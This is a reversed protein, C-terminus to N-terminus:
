FRRGRGGMPRGMPRHMTRHHMVPGHFGRRMGVRPGMPMMVVPRVPMIPVVHAGSAHHGYMHPHSMGCGM